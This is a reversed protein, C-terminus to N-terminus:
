INVILEAKIKGTSKISQTQETKITIICTHSGFQDYFCPRGFLRYDFLM